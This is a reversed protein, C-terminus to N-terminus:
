DGAKEKQSAAPTLALLQSVTVFTFGRARLRSIIEPLAGATHWGRKNIHMVIISGNQAMSTVYRILRAETFGPDPDGSALDFQVTRLGVSAAVHVVREDYEGFPPRFLTPRIGTLSDLINQTRVLESRISEDSLANLHPHSYTHNALEFQPHSALQRTHEPEEEMWRGGLFITAPTKTEILVNTIQEDYRSPAVTSCADFTLALVKLNRPGHLVVIPAVPQIAPPGNSVPLASVTVSDPSVKTVPAVPPLPEGPQTNKSGFTFFLAATALALPGQVWLRKTRKMVSFIFTSM